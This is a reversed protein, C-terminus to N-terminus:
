DFRMEGKRGQSARYIIRHAAPLMLDFVSCWASGKKMCPQRRLLDMNLEFYVLMGGEDAKKVIEEPLSEDMGPSSFYIRPSTAESQGFAVTQRANSLVFHTPSQRRLTVGSQKRASELWYDSDDFLDRRANEVELRFTPNWNKDLSGIRLTLLGSSTGLMRDSDVVSGLGILLQRLTADSGFLDLLDKGEIRTALLFLPATAQSNVQIFGKQKEFDDISALVEQNDSELTYSLRLSSQKGEAEGHSASTFIKVAEKPCDAPVAMRFLVNYPTPVADLQAYLQFNGQLASLKKFAPTEVFRDSHHWMSVITHRLVDREQAVGPGLVVAMRRNWGLLLGKNVWAWEFGESSELRTAEGQRQLQAISSEFQNKDTLAMTLGVYENPTVFAYLPRSFDIGEPVIGLVQEFQSLKERPNKMQSADVRVVAKAEAPIIADYSQPWLWWSTLGIIVLLLVVICTAKLKKGKQKMVNQSNAEM